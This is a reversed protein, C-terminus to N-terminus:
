PWWFWYAAVMLAWLVLGIVAGVVLVRVAGGDAPPGALHRLHRTDRWDRVRLVLCRVGGVQRLACAVSALWCYVRPPRVAPSPRRRLGGVDAVPNNASASRELSRWFAQTTAPFERVCRRTASFECTYVPFKRLAPFYASISQM